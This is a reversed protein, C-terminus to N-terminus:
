ATLSQSQQANWAKVAADRIAAFDPTPAGTELNWLACEAARRGVLGPSIVKVGDIVTENWSKIHGEITGWKGANVAALTGGNMSSNAIATFGANDALLVLASFENASLNQTIIRKLGTIIPDLRAQRETDAQDQTWVLGPQVMPGTCGWGITLTGLIPEGPMIPRHLPDEDDYAHLVCAEMAKQLAVGAPSFTMDPVALRVPLGSSVIDGEPAQVSVPPVPIMGLGKLFASIASFITM